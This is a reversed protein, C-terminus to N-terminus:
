VLSTNLKLLEDRIADEFYLGIAKLEAAERTGSPSITFSRENVAVRWGIFKKGRGNDRLLPESIITFTSGGCNHVRTHRLKPKEM